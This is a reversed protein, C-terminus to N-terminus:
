KRGRDGELADLVHVMLTGADTLAWRDAPRGIQQRVNDVVKVFKHGRLAILNTRTSTSAHGLETAIDAVTATGLSAMARLLRWQSENIVIRRKM